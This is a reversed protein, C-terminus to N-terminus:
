IFLRSNFCNLSILIPYLNVHVQKRTCACCMVDNMSRRESTSTEFYTQYLNSVNLCSNGPDILHFPCNSTEVM